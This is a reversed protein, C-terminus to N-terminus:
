RLAASDMFGGLEVDKMTVGGADHTTLLVDVLNYVNSWEPHHDTRKAEEAVKSMWAWAQDFDAFRFRKRIAMPPDCVNWDILMAAALDPDLPEM